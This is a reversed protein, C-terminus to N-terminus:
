KIINYKKLFKTLEENTVTGIKIEEQQEGEVFVLTTPTSSVDFLEKFKKFDSESLTAVDIDYGLLNNNAMVENYIPKYAICHSCYTQSILLVFSEKDEIMKRVKDLKVTLINSYSSDSAIEYYELDDNLEEVRKEYDKIETRKEDITSTLQKNQVFLGITLVSLVIIIFIFIITKVDKM